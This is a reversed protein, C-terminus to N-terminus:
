PAVTVSVLADPAGAAPVYTGVLRYRYTVGPYLGTDTYQCATIQLPASQGSPRVWDLPQHDIGRLLHYGLAEPDCVWSLTVVGRSPSTASIGTPGRPGVPITAILVASELMGIGPYSAVVKYYQTVGVQAAYDRAWNKDSYSVNAPTAFPGGPSASRVLAITAADPTGTWSFSVVESGRTISVSVNAPQGVMVAVQGSPQGNVPQVYYRHTGAVLNADHFSTATPPLVSVVQYGSAGQLQRYVSYGTVGQVGTWTIQATRGITLMAALNGVPPWPATEGLIAPSDGYGAPHLARVVYDFRKGPALGAHTFGTVYNPQAAGRVQLRTTSSLDQCPGTVPSPTLKLQTGGPPTAFVEYGTAGPPCSWTLHIYDQTARVRLGTPPPESNSVLAPRFGPAPPVVTRVRQGALPAATWFLMVVLPAFRILYTM